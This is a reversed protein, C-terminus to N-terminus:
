APHDERRCLNTLEGKWGVNIGPNQYSTGKFHLKVDNKFCWNLADKITM